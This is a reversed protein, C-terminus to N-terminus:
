ADGRELEVSDVKQFGRPLKLGRRAREGRYHELDDIKLRLHRKGSYVVITDVESFALVHSMMEARDVVRAKPINMIKVGKGRGMIPMDSLAFILLRGENSIAAIYEHKLDRIRSPQNVVGGAPVTILSKGAKNKTIMDGVTTIFGYGADSSVLYLQEKEGTVLGTFFAGSPPNIRGTLPEGQGRASPLTHCPITYSRGTSDLFVADENSKAPMSYLFQDGSRYNLETADVDHGKAARMWGKESLVVTIAESSILDKERFAQAEDRQVIPSMRENGYTAADAVLEKKVLTKLRTKSGIIKELEVRESNLEDQEGKIKIEELKALQRLRLDLIADAQLETLNYAKILAIKPKDETRVIRIVEDINLYAIMLGDLIHLRDLIKALRYNLRRLVTDTRFTLWESLIETLSKVRPRGDIGIMNFNVRHSRELDTSAFLHGMLVEVDIRNSRPVVVIRTPNEHDSEDRLDVVMPLKKSQMQAAIQELIKTGSIQFPLATIVIDGNEVSYVARTKISGKGTEYIQCIDDAGSIIEAHTPFDPGKIHELLEKVTSKPKDLLRICASAVEILNHPPIDTAMGVAIGMGGNLLINPLRAPLNVPEQRTGDFNPMWDVNGQGLEGLLVEAYKTLKSETYRMAAFSKPDDPAGWNGQGDVLPYRYTFPQAMLVMAEYSAADGHPHFKGIVDGVTRASKVYKADANLRLESMAYVIRRQVPKLGDGIFPLARDNIVYMAYNLYAKETFERLSVKEIDNSDLPGSM